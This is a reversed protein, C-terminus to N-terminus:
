PVGSKLLDTGHQYSVLPRAGTAGVPIAMLGSAVVAKGKLDPTKYDVKVFQIGYQANAPLGLAQLQANAQDKTLTSLATTSVITGRDPFSASTVNASNSGGSGCGTLVLLPVSAALFSWFLRSVPRAEHMSM